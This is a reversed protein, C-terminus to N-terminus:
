IGLEKETWVTFIMDNEKAYNEYANLKAVTDQVNKNIMGQPKIEILEKKGDVRIALIDPLSNRKQGLYNVYPIYIKEYEYSIYITESELKKVGALEYSSKLWITKNNKKSFFEIDRSYDRKQTRKIAAISMNEKGKESKPKSGARTVAERYSPKTLYANNIGDIRKKRIVPDKWSQAVVIKLNNNRDVNHTVEQIKTQFKESNKIAISSRNRSEESRPPLVGSKHEYVGKPM